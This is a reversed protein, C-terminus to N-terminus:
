SRSLAVLSSMGWVMLVLGLILAIVSMKKRSADGVTIGWTICFTVLGNCFHYITATTGIFYIALWMWLPMWMHQFGAKTFTFFAPYADAFEKGGFLYAFRYHALHIIIFVVVIWATIRQLTYRWNDLYPYQSQNTKGELAIVIGYIGHFALPAFIFAIETAILWPLYHIGGVFRDFSEAGLFATSNALLHFMLFVGVPVIGSLSHLRRLLFHNRDVCSLATEAM